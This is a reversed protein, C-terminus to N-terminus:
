IREATHTWCFSYKINQVSLLTTALVHMHSVVCGHLKLLVVSAINCGRKQLTTISDEGWYSQLVGFM